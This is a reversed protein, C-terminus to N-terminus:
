HDCDPVDRCDEPEPRPSPPVGARDSASPPPVVTVIVPECPKLNVAGAIVAAFALTRIAIFM